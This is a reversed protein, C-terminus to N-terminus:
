NYYKTSVLLIVFSSIFFTIGLQILQLEVLITLVMPQYTIYLKYKIVHIIQFLNILDNIQLCIQLNM